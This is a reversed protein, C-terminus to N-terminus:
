VADACFFPAGPYLGLPARSRYAGSPSFVTRAPCVRAMGGDKVAGPPGQHAPCTPVRLIPPKHASCVVRFGINNNRNDPDNRNRIAARANDPNNIWSGGRLV